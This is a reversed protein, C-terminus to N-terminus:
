SQCDSIKPPCQNSRRFPGPGAFLGPWAESSRRCCIAAGATAAATPAAPEVPASAASESKSAPLDPLEAPRPTWKMLQLIPRYNTGFKDKSPVVGTCSFVPVQGPYGDRGAMYITFADNVANCLHLSCSSLEVAGGFYQKSYLILIFGRKFDAETPKAATEQLSADLIRDPAQGERFRMWGTEINAMDAIFTPNAIDIDEGNEGQRSWRGSKANYKCYPRSSGNSGINLCKFIVKPLNAFLTSNFHSNTDANRRKNLCLLNCARPM